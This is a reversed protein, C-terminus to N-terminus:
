EKPINRVAVIERFRKVDNEMRERAAAAPGPAPSAGLEVIRKHVEDNGLAKNMEQNIRAVIPEPTKAAAVLALWSEYVLSPYFESLAPVQPLQESRKAGSVALLRITGARVQPLAATMSNIYINVRGAIVETLDTNGSTFPVHLLQVGAESSLWEGLLHYGSGVGVSTFSLRGPNTKARSIFEEFSRIPSNAAVGIVMPYTTVMGLWTFSDIPDFPLTKRMAALAAQASATLVWTQGDPASKIGAELAIIGGAGPRDEIVVPQGLAQAALPFVLRATVDSNSGPGGSVVLRIPGSPFAPQARVAGAVGAMLGGASAALLQRRQM